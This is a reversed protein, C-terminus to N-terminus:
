YCVVVRVVYFKKETCTSYKVSLFEYFSEVQLFEFFTYTGQAGGPIAHGSETSEQTTYLRDTFTILFNWYLLLFFFLNGNEVFLRVLKRHMVNNRNRIRTSLILKM